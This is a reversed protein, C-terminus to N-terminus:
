NLGMIFKAIDSDLFKAFNDVEKKFTEEKRREYEENSCFLIPLKSSKRGKSKHKFHFGDYTIFGMKEFCNNPYNCELSVSRGENEAVRTILKTLITGYGNGRENKDIAIHGIKLLSYDVFCYAYGITTNCKKIVFVNSEDDKGDIIDEIEKRFQSVSPKLASMEFDCSFDNELFYGLVAPIDETEIISITIDNKAYLVM